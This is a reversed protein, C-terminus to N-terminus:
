LQELIRAADDKGRFPEGSKLALGLFQKASSRDGLRAQIAGAHYAVEPIERALSLGPQIAEWAAGYEGRRYEIWANTDALYPDSAGYKQRAIGLWRQAEELEAGADALRWALHAALDPDFPPSNMGEILLAITEGFRQEGDLWRVYEGLVRPDKPGADLAARFHGEITETPAKAARAHMAETLALLARDADSL